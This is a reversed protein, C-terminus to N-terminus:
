GSVHLTQMGNITVNVTRFFAKLEGILDRTSVLELDAVGRLHEPARAGAWRTMAPMARAIVWPQLSVESAM